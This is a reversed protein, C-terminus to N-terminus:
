PAIGAGFTGDCTQNEDNLMSFVGEIGLAQDDFVGELSAVFMWPGLSVVTGESLGSFSDGTCSLSGSLPASFYYGSISGDEVLLTQEEPSGTLTFVIEGSISVPFGNLGEMTCEFGGVYRGAKCTGAGPLTETWTFDVDPDLGPDVQVGADEDEGPESIPVPLFPDAAADVPAGADANAPPPV